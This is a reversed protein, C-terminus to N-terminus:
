INWSECYKKQKTKIWISLIQVSIIQSVVMSFIYSIRLTFIFKDNEHCEDTSSAVDILYCRFRGSEVKFSPLILTFLFLFFLIKFLSVMSTNQVWQHLTYLAAKSFRFWLKNM